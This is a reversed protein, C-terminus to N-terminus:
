SHHIYIYIYIPTELFLSAGLDDIRIPSERIFWGNQPVRIKPFVWIYLYLTHFVPGLYIYQLPKCYKTFYPHGDYVLWYFLIDHWPKWGREYPIFCFRKARVIGDRFSGQGRFYSWGLFFRDYELELCGNEPAKATLNLSPIAKSDKIIQRETRWHPPSKATALSAVASVPLSIWQQVPKSILSEVLM